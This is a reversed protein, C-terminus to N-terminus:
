SFLGYDTRHQPRRTRVVTYLVPFFPYISAYPPTSDIPSAMSIRRTYRVIRRHHRISSLPHIADDLMSPFIPALGDMTRVVTNIRSHSVTFTMVRLHFLLRSPLFESLNWHSVDPYSPEATRHILHSRRFRVCGTCLGRTRDLM